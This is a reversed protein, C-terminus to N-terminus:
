LAVRLYFCKGSLNGIGSCRFFCLYLKMSGFNWDLLKGWLVLIYISTM